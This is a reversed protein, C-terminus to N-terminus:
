SPGMKQSSARELERRLEEAEIRGQLQFLNPSLLVPIEYKYREYLAPDDLINVEEVNLPYQEKLRNLLKRAKDCLSCKPKTYFKILISMLSSSVEKQTGDYHIMPIFDLITIIKAKRQNKLHNLPHRNTGGNGSKTKERL